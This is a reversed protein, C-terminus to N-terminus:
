FRSTDGVAIVAKTLFLCRYVCFYRYGCYMAHDTTAAVRLALCGNKSFRTHSTQLTIVNLQIMEILLPAIPSRALTCDWSYAAGHTTASRARREVDALGTSVVRYTLIYIRM